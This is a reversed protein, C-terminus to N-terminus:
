MHTSVAVSATTGRQTGSYFCLGRAETSRQPIFSVPLTVRFTEPILDGEDEPLILYTDPVQFVWDEVYAKKVSDDVPIWFPKWQCVWGTM